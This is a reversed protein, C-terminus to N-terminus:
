RDDSFTTKQAGATMAEVTRRLKLRLYDAYAEPTPNLQLEEVVPSFYALSRIPNLPPAKDPRILRRLSGLWLATRVLYLPVGDDFFRHALWQDALSARWPTEPLEIYQDIVAAVYSAQDTM